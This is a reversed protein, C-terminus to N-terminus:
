FTSKRVRLLRIAEVVFVALFIPLHELWVVCYDFFGTGSYTFGLFDFESTLERFWFRLYYVLLLPAYAIWARNRCFTLFPLAWTWYWPNQTPQLCFFIAVIWFCNSLFHNVSEQNPKPTRLLRYLVISYAISFMGITVLRTILNPSEENSVFREGMRCISDRSQKGLVRFWPVDVTRTEDISRLNQFLIMFILENMQWKRLFESLGENSEANSNSTSDSTLDETTRSPAIAEISHQAIGPSLTIDIPQLHETNQHTISETTKKEEKEVRNIELWMPLFSLAAVSVFASAFVTAHKLGATRWLTVIFLPVLIIPYIKAGFGLGLFLGSLILSATTSAAANTDKPTIFKVLFVAAAMVLFVAISDLHGSNAFEKVVLPNWAYVILWGFHLKLRSLLYAILFMTGLDFLTIVTKIAFLHAKVSAQKPVIAMTAAFVFQSTPPYITTYKAFHVRSLITHTSESRVALKRIQELEANSNADTSKAERPSFRYPSHGNSLVIGDWMYRYLDLEQFPPAFLQVLRFAIAFLVLMWFSDRGLRRTKLSGWLAILSLVSAILLLCTVLVVPRNISEAQYDYSPGLFTVFAFCIWILGGCVMMVYHGLDSKAGVRNIVNSDERKRPNMRTNPDTAVLPTLGRQAVLPTLGRQRNLPRVGNQTTSFSTAAPAWTEVPQEAEWQNDAM